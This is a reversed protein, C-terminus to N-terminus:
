WVDVRLRRLVTTKSANATYRRVYFGLAAASVDLGAGSPTFLSSVLYSSIQVRAADLSPWGGSYAGARTTVMGGVNECISVDNAIFPATYSYYTGGTMGFALAGTGTTNSLRGAGVQEASGALTLTPGAYIDNNADGAPLTAIQLWIRWNGSLLSKAGIDSTPKFTVLLLGAASQAVSLGSASVSLTTTAPYTWTWTYGGMTSTGGTAPPAAITALDVDVITKGAGLSGSSLALPSAIDVAGGAGSTLQSASGPWVVPLKTAASTAM